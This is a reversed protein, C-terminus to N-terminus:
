LDEDNTTADNAHGVAAGSTSSPPTAVVFPTLVAVSFYFLVDRAENKEGLMVDPYTVRPAGAWRIHDHYEDM